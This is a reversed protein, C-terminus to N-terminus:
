ACYPGGPGGYLTYFGPAGSPTGLQKLDYCGPSTVVSDLPPDQILQGTGSIGLYNGILGARALGESAFHGSGMHISTHTGGPMNNLIVGGRQVLAGEYFDHFLEGPYYGIEEHNILVWWKYDDLERYITIVIYFQLGDIQSTNTFGGGLFVNPNTQVFGPCANNLCSTKADDMWGAGIQSKFLIDYDDEYPPLTQDQDSHLKTNAPYGGEISLYTASYEDPEVYIDWLFMDASGGLYPNNLSYDIAWEQGPTAAEKALSSLRLRPVSLFSPSPFIAHSAHSARRIPITGEPCAGNIRWTQAIGYGSGSEYVSLNSHQGQLFIDRGM